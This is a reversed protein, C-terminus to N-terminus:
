VVFWKKFLVFSMKSHFFTIPSVVCHLRYHVFSVSFVSASNLGLMEFYFLTKIAM